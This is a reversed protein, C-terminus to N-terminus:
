LDKSIRKILEEAFLYMEIQKVSEKGDKNSIMWGAPHALWNDAHIEFVSREQRIRDLIQNIVKEM